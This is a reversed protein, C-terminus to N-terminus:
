PDRSTLVIGAGDWTLSNYGSARGRALQCEDNLSQMAHPQHCRRPSSRHGPTRPAALADDSEDLIDFGSFSNHDPLYKLEFEWGVVLHNTSLQYEMPESTHVLVDNSKGELNSHVLSM